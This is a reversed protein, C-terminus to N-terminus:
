GLEAADEAELVAMLAKRDIKGNQNLPFADLVRIGRPVMYRPLQDQMRDLVGNTDLDAAVVFGIVGSAGAPTKPWGLVVGADVGAERQMVAEIEGLEVRYGNLKIQSDVRGLFTMPAGPLPRRVRDGTRYFLETEGPPVMFAAATREPDNWYGLARQPGSMLLEGTEGPAVDILDENVVKVQMGAFPDGIPVVENECEALSASTWRYHTCALTLETPGYINELIADPAAEAFAQALGVPLAEGCFLVLRLNAFVGPTLVRMQKMLLAASPVSFWVTLRSDVVFQNPLLRQKVDPVCLCAGVKWAAFMDFLSLDFTIEFLHSFRDTERLSYRDVVVDLFRAINRHAVMVGKPEGTSGSTFLLYAIDDDGVPPPTWDNAGLSALEALGILTHRPHRARLQESAEGESLVVLLSHTVGDLVEDLVRQGAADVVLSRANSRHLMLVIRAPPLSPLMPVYGHGSCLAGLIGAFGAVSRHVLAATLPPGEGSRHRMLGVAIALVRERLQAYTVAQGDVELAPRQPHAQAALLFGGHLVRPNIDHGQM